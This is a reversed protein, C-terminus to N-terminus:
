LTVNAAWGPREISTQGVDRYVLRRTVRVPRGDRSTVYSFRFERVLGDSDVIVELSANRVSADADISLQSRDRVSDGRLRYLPDEVQRPSHGLREVEDIAVSEFAMALLDTQQGRFIGLDTPSFPTGDSDRLVTVETRDGISRRSYVTHGDAFLQTEQTPGVRTGAAREHYLYRSRNPPYAGERILERLLTGNATTERYVATVRYGTGDLVREHSDLLADLNQVRDRAPDPDFVAHTGPGTADTSGTTPQEVSFPDRTTGTDALGGCGALGVLLALAFVRGVRM